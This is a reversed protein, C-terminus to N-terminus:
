WHKKETTKHKAQAWTEEENGVSIVKGLIVKSWFNDRSTLLQILKYWIPFISNTDATKIESNELEIDRRQM